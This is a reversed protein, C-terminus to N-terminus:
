NDAFFVPIDNEDEMEEQVDQILGKAATKKVEHLQPFVFGLKLEGQDLRYRFRGSIEVKKGGMFVPIRLTVDEPIVMDDKAGTEEVYTFQVDGSEVSKAREFQVSKKAEFNRAVEIIRAPQPDYFDEAHEEVLDALDFQDLLGRNKREWKEFERSKKPRFSIKHDGWRPQGPSHYDFVAEMDAEVPHAFIVTNDTAFKNIYDVFGELTHASLRKRINRPSERFQELDELKYGEPVLVALGDLAEQVKDAHASSIRQLVESGIPRQDDSSSLSM